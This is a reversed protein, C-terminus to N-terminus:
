EFTSGLILYVQYAGVVDSGSPLGEGFRVGFMPILDLYINKTARVQLSPGALVMGDEGEGELEAKLEFGFLLRNYIFIYSMGMTAGFEQEGPSGFQREYFLNVGWFWRDKFQDGFMLKAEMAQPAETNFEYDVQITPNGWLVGWDAWAWRLELEIQSVKLEGLYGKQEFQLYFDALFRKGLGYELELKWRNLPQGDSVLDGGTVFWFDLSLEGPPLVYVETDTFRRKTTWVPQKYEGVLDTDKEPKGVVTTKFNKDEQPKKADDKAAGEEAAREAAKAAPAPVADASLVGSQLLVAAFFAAGTVFAKKIM